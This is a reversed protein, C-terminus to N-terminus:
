ATEYTKKKLTHTYVICFVVTKPFALGTKHTFSFRPCHTNQINKLIPRHEAMGNSLERRSRKM